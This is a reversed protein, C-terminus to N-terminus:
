LIPTITISLQVESGPDIDYLQNNCGQAIAIDNIDVGRAYFRWIPGRDPIDDIVTILLANLDEITGRRFDSNEYTAFDDTLKDCTPELRDTEFLYITISKLDDILARPILLNASVSSTNTDEGCGALGLLLVSVLCCNFIKKRM